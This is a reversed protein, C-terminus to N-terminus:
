TRKPRKRRLSRGSISSSISGVSMVPAAKANNTTARPANIACLPTAARASGRSTGCPAAANRANCSGMKCHDACSRPGTSLSHVRTTLMRVPSWPSSNAPM